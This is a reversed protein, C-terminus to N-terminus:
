ESTSALRRPPSASIMSGTLEVQHFCHIRVKVGIVDAAKARQAVTRSADGRDPLLALHVDHGCSSRVAERAAMTHERAVSQQDAAASAGIERRAAREM